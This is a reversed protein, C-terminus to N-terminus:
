VLGHNSLFEEKLETPRFILDKCIAKVMYQNRQATGFNFM